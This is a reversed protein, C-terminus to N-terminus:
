EAAIGFNTKARMEGILAELDEHMKKDIGRLKTMREENASEWARIAAASSLTRITTSAAKAWQEATTKAGEKPAPSATRAPVRQTQMPAENAANADDDEEASIGCIAALSYRRAYTLASGFEQAKATTPLPHVSEVWQGSMHMLRTTLFSGNEDSGVLQVISLGQQALPQTVAERIAALDAYKSKFHPNVKNLTANAMLGQAKALATALQDISESSRM